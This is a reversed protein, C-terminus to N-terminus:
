FLSDELAIDGELMQLTGKDLILKFDPVVIYVPLYGLLHHFTHTYMKSQVYLKKLEDYSQLCEEPTKPDADSGPLACGHIRPLIEKLHRVKKESFGLVMDKSYVGQLYRVMALQSLFILFIPIASVSNVVNPAAIVEGLIFGPLLMATVVLIGLAASIVGVTFIVLWARKLRFQIRSHLHFFSDM